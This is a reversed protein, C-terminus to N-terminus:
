RYTGREGRPVMVRGRKTWSKGGDKSTALGVEFGFTAANFTHYYMGLEGKLGKVKDLEVIQPWSVFLSDFEGEAGAM